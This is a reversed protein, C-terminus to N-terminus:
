QYKDDGDPQISNESVLNINRYQVMQKGFENINLHPKYTNLQEEEDLNNANEFSNKSLTSRFNNESKESAKETASRGSPRIM